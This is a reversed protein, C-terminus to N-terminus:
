MLYSKMFINRRGQGKASWQYSCSYLNKEAAHFSSMKVVTLQFKAMEDRAKYQWCEVSRQKLREAGM